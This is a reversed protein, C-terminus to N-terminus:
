DSNDSTRSQFNCFTLQIYTHTHRKHCRDSMWIKNSRLKWVYSYWNGLDIQWTWYPLCHVPIPQFTLIADIGRHRHVGAGRRGEALLIEANNFAGRGCLHLPTQTSKPWVPCQTLRFVDCINGFVVVGCCHRLRCLFCLFFRMIIKIKHHDRNGYFSSFHLEDFLM